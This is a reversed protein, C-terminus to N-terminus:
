RAMRMVRGAFAETWYLGSEDAAMAFVESLGSAMLAPVSGSKPVGVLTHDLDEVTGTAPDPAEYVCRDDVAQPYVGNDLQVPTGGTKPLSVTGLSPGKWVFYLNDADLSLLVDGGLASTLVVTAGGARPVSFAQNGTSWYLSTADGFIRSSGPGITALETLTGGSKPMSFLAGEDSNVLYIRDGDVGVLSTSGTVGTITSIPGGTKDMAFVSWAAPDAADPGIWYIRLDDLTLSAFGSGTALTTAAGGSKPASMLHKPAYEDLQRVGPDDFWYVADHDLVLATPNQHDAVTTIAGALCLSPDGAPEVTGPSSSSGPLDGAGLSITSTCAALGLLASIGLTSAFTRARM